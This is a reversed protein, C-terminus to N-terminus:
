QIKQERMFADIKESIQNLEKNLHEQKLDLKKEQILAWVLLILTLTRQQGDVININKLARIIKIVTYYSRVWDIHLNIKINKYIM